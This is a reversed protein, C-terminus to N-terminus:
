HLQNIEKIAKQRWMAARRLKVPTTHRSSIIRAIKNCYQLFKQPKNREEGDHTELLRQFYSSHKL